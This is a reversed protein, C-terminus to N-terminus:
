RVWTNYVARGVQFGPGGSKILEMCLSQATAKDLPMDAPCAIGSRIVASHILLKANSDTVKKKLENYIFNVTISQEGAM